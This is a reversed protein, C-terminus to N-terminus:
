QLVDARAIHCAWLRWSQELPLGLLGFLLRHGLEQFDGGRRWFLQFLGGM